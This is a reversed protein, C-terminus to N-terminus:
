AARGARGMRRTAYKPTVIAKEVPWGKRLRRSLADLSVACRDDESWEVLLRVEGFAEIPRTGRRNRQQQTDTAWRCNGLEYHGAGDIRDLTTGEPREGMDALFNEFSLWRVCVTVGRGGYQPWAKHTPLFCRAKMSQWTVWTPSGKHGHTRNSRGIAAIREKVICGCSRTGGNRLHKGAAVVERGCECRCRWSLRGDATHGAPEVVTLRGFVNGRMDIARPNM